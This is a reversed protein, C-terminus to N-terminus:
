RRRQLQGAARLWQQEARDMLQGADTHDPRAPMVIALNWLAETHGAAAAQRLWVVAEDVKRQRVLM